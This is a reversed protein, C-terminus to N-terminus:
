AFRDLRKRAIKSVFFCVFFSLFREFVIVRGGLPPPTVLTWVTRIICASFRLAAVLGTFKLALEGTATPQQRESIMTLEDNLTISSM